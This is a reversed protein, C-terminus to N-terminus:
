VYLYYLDEFCFIVYIREIFNIDIFNEIDITTTWKGEKFSKWEEKM